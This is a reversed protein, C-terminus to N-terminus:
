RLERGCEPWQSSDEDCDLRRPLRGQSRTFVLASVRVRCCGQAEGGGSRYAALLSLLRLRWYLNEDWVHPLLVWARAEDQEEEEGEASGLLGALLEQAASFQGAQLLEEARAKVRCALAM